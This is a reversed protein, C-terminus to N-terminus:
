KCRAGRIADILDAVAWAWASAFGFLLGLRDRSAVYELVAICAWAFGVFRWLM